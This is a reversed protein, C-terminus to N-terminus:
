EAAIFTCERALLHMTLQWPTLDTPSPLSRPSVYRGNVVARADLDFVLCLRSRVCDFVGSMLM